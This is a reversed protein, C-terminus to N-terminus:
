VFKQLPEVMCAWDSKHRREMEKVIYKAKLDQTHYEESHAQIYLALEKITKEYDEDMGSTEVRLVGTTSSQSM